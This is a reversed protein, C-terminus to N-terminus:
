LGKNIYRYTDDDNQSVQRFGKRKKWVLFTSGIVLAVLVMLIAMLVYIVCELISYTKKPRNNSIIEDDTLIKKITKGKHKVVCVYQDKKWNHPSVYLIATIQFTGDVNPLAKGLYVDEYHEEGNRLWTISVASPYFGTAHCVVLSSSDEQLLYMKPARRKLDVKKSLLFYIVWDVCDDRYYRRLYTLQAKDNNWRAMTNFGQPVATNYRSNEVDLSIFDQGDYGHEDFRNSHGTEDDWDCGYMRQYTHVGHSHNFQGMLFRVSIKNTQQVRLRIKTYEKWKYGSAFEKTWRQRPILKKIESDYYDIQRGDLETVSSIEPIGVITQGNIETYTTIFTHLESHVLPIYICFIIFNM